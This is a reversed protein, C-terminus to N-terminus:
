RWASMLMQQLEFGHARQAPPAGSQAPAYVRVPARRWPVPKTGAAVLEGARTMNRIAERAAVFGVQAKAALERATSGPADAAALQLALRIEGRPRAM